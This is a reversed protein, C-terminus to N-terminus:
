HRVVMCAVNVLGSSMGSRERPVRTVPITMIPGTILGLGIWIGFLGLWIPLFSSQAHVFALAGIGIGTLTM